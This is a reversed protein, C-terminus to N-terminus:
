TVEKVAELARVLFKYEDSTPIDLDERILCAQCQEDTFNSCKDKCPHSTRKLQPWSDIEPQGPMISESTETLKM